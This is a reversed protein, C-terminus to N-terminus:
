SNRGVAFPGGLVEEYTRRDWRLFAWGSDADTPHTVLQPGAPLRERYVGNDELWEDRYITEQYRYGEDPLLVVVTADPNQRAWWRAVLFAAGSTGGMFLAHRWYLRKTALFAEPAGVWHVEDFSSHDVNEPMLSNGLGRLLRKQDPQGFLVSGFTDVGIATLEPFPLRLFSSTGCMSGGSGVTGVLCDIQGLREVLLEALPAYAGPNQRNMYQAPWLHRPFEKRLEEMRDLRAQQLGGVPAPRDVIEVRAGLYELRRKLGADIAPDSVLLIRYRHLRGVMALALGFTGSTTEIVMARRGILGEARARDLIFQASLLKMLPFCAGYLNEQLRVLRPMRMDDM